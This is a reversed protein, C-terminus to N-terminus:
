YEGPKLTVVKGNVIQAISHGLRRHEAIAESVAERIQELERQGEADVRPETVATDSM